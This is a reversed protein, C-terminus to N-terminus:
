FMDIFEIALVVNQFIQVQGDLVALENAKQAVRAAALGRQHLM